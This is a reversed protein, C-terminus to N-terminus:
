AKRKEKATLAIQIIIGAAFLVAFAVLFVSSAYADRVADLKRFFEIIKIAGGYSLQYAVLALLTSGIFSTFVSLFIRKLNLTLVGFICGAAVAPVYVFWDTVNLRFVEIVLLSLLMGGGFGIMFVGLHIFFSFLLALVVGAGASILLRETAGVSPLFVATLFYGAVGGVALGYIAAAAWRWRCGFFCFIIGAAACACLAIIELTGHDM